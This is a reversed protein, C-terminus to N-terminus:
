AAKGRIPQQPLAECNMEIMEIKIQGDAVRCYYVVQTDHPATTVAYQYTLIAWARFRGDQPVEVTRLRVNIKIVKHDDRMRMALDAMTAAYDAASQFPLTRHALQIVMPYQCREAMANTDGALLDETNRVLMTQMANFM